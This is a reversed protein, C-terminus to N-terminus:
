KKKCVMQYDIYTTNTPIEGSVVLNNYTKTKDGTNWSYGYSTCTDSTYSGSKSCYEYNSMNKLYLNYTITDGHNVSTYKSLTKNLSKKTVSKTTLNDNYNKSESTYQEIRLKSFEARAKQTDTLTITCKDDTGNCYTNVPRYVAIFASKLTDTNMFLYDYYQEMSNYRVAFKDDGSGKLTGDDNYEFYWGTSHILGTDSSISDGVYMLTHGTNGIESTHGENNYRYILVDGKKLVKKLIDLIEKKQEETETGQVKYYFVFPTKNTSCDDYFPRGVIKGTTHDYKGNCGTKATTYQAAEKLPLEAFITGGKGLYKIGKKYNEVSNIVSKYNTGTFYYNYGAYTRSGNRYYNEADFGISKMNVNSAFTSCMSVYYSGRNIDEPSEEYSQWSFTNELTTTKGSKTGTPTIDMYGLDYETYEHNYLYSLGTGVVIDQLEEKTYVDGAAFSARISYVIVCMLLVFVSILIYTKKSISKLM